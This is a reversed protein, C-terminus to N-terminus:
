QAGWLQVGSTILCGAAIPLAFPMRLTSTNNINLETHPTLGNQRHHRVLLLANVITERLRGHTVALTVGLVAGCLATAFLMLGISHLGIFCGIAAMLKIDGAGMGGALFFLILLGGALLGALASNLAGSWGGSFFHLVIAILICPGTLLNPIRHERVDHVSAIAACVVAAGSFIIQQSIHTM